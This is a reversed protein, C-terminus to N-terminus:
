TVFLGVTLAGPNWLSTHAPRLLFGRQCECSFIMLRGKDRSKLTGPSQANVEFWSSKYLGLMLLSSQFAHSSNRCNFSIIFHKNFDCYRECERAVNQLARDGKKKGWVAMCSNGDQLYKKM